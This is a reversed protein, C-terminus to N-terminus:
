YVIPSVTSGPFSVFSNIANVFNAGEGSPFYFNFAYTEYQSSGFGSFDTAGQIPAKFVLCFEDYYGKLDIGLEYAMAAREAPDTKWPRNFYFNSLKVRESLVSSGFGKAYKVGQVVTVPFDEHCLESYDLDSPNKSSISMFLPEVEYSVADFYCEARERQVYASEFKVGCVCGTGNHAVNQLTWKSGNFPAPATFDYSRTNCTDCDINDSYIDLYYITTCNSSNTVGQTVTGLGAYATQLQTLFGNGCDDNKLSIQYSQLAKTCSGANTWGTTAAVGTFKCLNEVQGILTVTDGAVANTIPATASSGYAQYTSYGAVYSLRIMTTNDLYSAYSAKITSLATSNGADIRGITFGYTHTTDLTYGSPCTTCNPLVPTITPNYAAPTVNDCRVMEYTSLSGVHSLRTVKIGPYQAQVRGLAVQDGEDFIELDWKVCNTTVYGSPTDCSVLKTAKVYKSLYEGGIIKRKNVADIIADAIANCDVTSPCSDDCPDTCPLIPTFAETLTNYHTTSSAGLLNGIPAGSLTLYFSVDKGTSLSLTKSTDVGDFGLTVIMNQPKQSKNVSWGLINTAQIPPTKLTANTMGVGMPFKREDRGEAIIIAKTTPFSPATVAAYTKADFVGLQFDALNYTSGSTAITSLNTLFAGRYPQASM